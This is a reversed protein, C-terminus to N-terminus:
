ILEFVVINGSPFDHSHQKFITDFIYKHQSNAQMYILYIYQLHIYYRIMAPFVKETNTFLENFQIIDTTHEM